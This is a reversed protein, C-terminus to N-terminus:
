IKVKSVAPASMLKDLIQPDIEILEDKDEVEKKWRRNRAEKLLAKWEDRKLTGLIGWLFSSKPLSLRRRLKSFLICPRWYRECELNAQNGVRQVKSNSDNFSSRNAIDLQHHNILKEFKSEELSFKKWLSQQVNIM